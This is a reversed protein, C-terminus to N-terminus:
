LELWLKAIRAWKFKRVFRRAYRARQRWYEKDAALHRIERAAARADDGNNPWACIERGAEVANGVIPIGCAMATLADHAVPDAQPFRVYIGYSAWIPSNPGVEWAVPTDWETLLSAVDLARTQGRAVLVSGRRDIPLPLALDDDSVGPRIFPKVNHTHRLQNQVHASMPVITVGRPIDLAQDTWVFMTPGKPPDRDLRGVIIHKDAAGGPQVTQGAERLSAALSDAISAYYPDDSSEISYIM